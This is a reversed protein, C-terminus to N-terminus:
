IGVLCQMPNVRHVRCILTPLQCVIHKHPAGDHLAAAEGGYTSGVRGLIGARGVLSGTGGAM